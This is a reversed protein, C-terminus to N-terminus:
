KIRLQEHILAIGHLLFITFVKTHKHQNDYNEATAFNYKREVKIDPIIPFTFM